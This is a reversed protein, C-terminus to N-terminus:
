EEERSHGLDRHEQSPIIDTASDKPSAESGAARFKALVEARNREDESQNWLLRESASKQSTSPSSPLRKMVLAQPPTNRPRKALTSTPANVGMAQRKVAPQQSQERLIAAREFFNQIDEFVIGLIPALEEIALRPYKRVAEVLSSADLPSDDSDDSQSHSSSGSTSPDQIDSAPNTDFGDVTQGWQDYGQIQYFRLLNILKDEQRPFQLKWFDNITPPFYEPLTFGIDSRFIGISSLTHRPLIRSRNFSRGEMQNLKAKMEGMDGKMEGLM